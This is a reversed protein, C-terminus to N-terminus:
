DIFLFNCLLFKSLIPETVTLWHFNCKESNRFKEHALCNISENVFCHNFIVMPLRM